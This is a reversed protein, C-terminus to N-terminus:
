DQKSKNAAQTTFEDLGLAALILGRALMVSDHRGIAAARLANYPLDRKGKEDAAAAREADQIRHREVSEQAAAELQDLVRFVKDAVDQAAVILEADARNAVMAAIVRGQGNIVSYFPGSPGGPEGIMWPGQSPKNM